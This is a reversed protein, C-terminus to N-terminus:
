RPTLLLIAPRGSENLVESGDELLLVGSDHELTLGGGTNPQALTVSGAAVATLTNGAPSSGTATVTGPTAPTFTLSM